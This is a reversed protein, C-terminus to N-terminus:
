KQIKTSLRDSFLNDFTPLQYLEKFQVPFNYIANFLESEDLSSFFVDSFFSHMKRSKFHKHKITKELYINM